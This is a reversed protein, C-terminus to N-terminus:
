APDLGMLVKEIPHIEQDSSMNNILKVFRRFGDPGVIVGLTNSYNDWASSISKKNSHILALWLLIIHREDLRKYADIQAFKDKFEEYTNLGRKYLDLIKEVDEITFGREGTHFGQMSLQTGREGISQAAILGVPYNDPVIDFGHLTGYCATCVKKDKIYACDIISNKGCDGKVSHWPWLALVFQRMLYGAKATGIQKDSISSRANM